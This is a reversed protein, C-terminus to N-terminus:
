AVQRDKKGCMGASAWIRLHRQGWEIRIDQRRRGFTDQSRLIRRRRWDHCWGQALRPRRIGPRIRRRALRVVAARRHVAARVRRVLTSAVVLLIAAAVPLTGVAEAVLIGAAEAAVPMVAM